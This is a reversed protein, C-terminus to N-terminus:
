HYRNRRILELITQLRRRKEDIVYEKLMRQHKGAIDTLAIGTGHVLDSGLEDFRIEGRAWITEGTGPLAFELQVFRDHRGAPLRKAGAGYVRHVFLGSPSLNTTVARHLRDRVYENLFMRIPIRHDDRRDQM